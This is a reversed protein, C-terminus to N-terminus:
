PGADKCGAGTGTPRLTTFGGNTSNLHCTMCIYPAAATITGGSNTAFTSRDTLQGEATYAAFDLQGDNRLRTFIVETERVGADVLTEAVFIGKEGNAFIRRPGNKPKSCAITEDSWTRYDGYRARLEDLTAPLPRSCPYHYHLGRRLFPVDLRGDRGRAASALFARGMNEHEAAQARTATAPRDAPEEFMYHVVARMMESQGGYDFPDPVGATETQALQEGYGPEAETLNPALPPGPLAAGCAVPPKWGGDGAADYGADVINGDQVGADSSSADERPLSADHGPPGPFVAIGDGEGCAFFTLVPLAFSALFYARRM